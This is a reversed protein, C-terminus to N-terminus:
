ARKWLKNEMNKVHAPYASQLTDYIVWTFWFCQYTLVNYQPFTVSLQTVLSFVNLINSIRIQWSLM